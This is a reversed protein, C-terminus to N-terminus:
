TLEKPYDYYDKVIKIVDSILMWGDKIFKNVKLFHEKEFSYSDNCDNETFINITEKNM